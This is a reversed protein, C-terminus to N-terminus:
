QPKQRGMLRLHVPSILRLHLLAHYVWYVWLGILALYAVPSGLNFYLADVWEFHHMHVVGRTLGCGPCEVDFFLRSPCVIVESEDIAASPLAWLFLPFGLLAILWGGQVVPHHLVSKIM